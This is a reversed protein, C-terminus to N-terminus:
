SLEADQGQHVKVRRGLIEVRGEAIWQIVQSYLEHEKALIRRALNEETDDEEVPVSCQAIIPGSDVGPDVFHVTCGSIKVGYDLAQKQGHTGPFSPLLAPHINIVRQPFKTLFDEGLIRMFGALVVLEGQYQRVLKGLALDYEKRQPFSKPDLFIGTIGEEEAKKLAPADEHDSIVVNIQAQLNGNKIQEIIALLNSGRGSALVALKLPAM